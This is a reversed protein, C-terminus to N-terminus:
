ISTRILEFGEAYNCNAQVGRVKALSKIFDANQYNRHSQSKYKALANIKQDIDAEELKIFFNHKAELNNWVLEYGLLTCHKFARVAENHIVNHDQHIDYSNPFFVLDPNIQKKIKILDELIEQRYKPFERVPYRFQILQDQKIGLSACSGELERYIADKELGEPLSKNCPSFCVYWVENGDKLLKSISAGCAFEVDDPHPALALIIQNKIEM